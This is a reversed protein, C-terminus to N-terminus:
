PVDDLCDDVVTGPFAPNATVQLRDLERTPTLQGPLRFKHIIVAFEQFSVRSDELMDWEAITDEIVTQSLVGYCRFRHYLQELEQRSLFGDCDLDLEAFEAKLHDLTFVAEPSDEYLRCAALLNAYKEPSQRRLYDEDETIHTLSNYHVPALYSIFIHRDTEKPGAPLYQLHWNDLTSTLVHITVGFVDCLARLTIEDGWTGIRKMRRLYHRFRREGDFYAVYNDEHQEIHVTVAKRVQPHYEQDRFMQYAAARFQCNGDDRMVIQQLQLSRVREQLRQVGNRLEQYLFTVQHRPSSDDPRATSCLECRSQALGNTHTCHPCPWGRFDRQTEKWTLPLGWGADPQPTRKAMELRAGQALRKLKITTMALSSFKPLRHSAELARVIMRELGILRHMEPLPAHSDITDPRVSCSACLRSVNSVHNVWCRKCRASRSMPSALSDVAAEWPDCIERQSQPQCNSCIVARCKRCQFAKDRTGAVLDACKLCFAPTTFYLADFDHVGPPPARKGTRVSLIIGM